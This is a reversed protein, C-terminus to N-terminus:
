EYMTDFASTALKTNKDHGRIGTRLESTNYKGAPSFTAGRQSDILINSRMESGDTPPTPGTGALRPRKQPSQGTPVSGANPKQRVSKRSSLAATPNRSLSAAM